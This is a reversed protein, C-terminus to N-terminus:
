RALARRAEVAATARSSDNKMAAVFLSDRSRIRNSVEASRSARSSLAHNEDPPRTFLESREIEDLAEASAARGRRRAELFPTARARTRRAGPRRGQRRHASCGRGDRARHAHRPSLQHQARCLRGHRGAPRGALAHRAVSNPWDRRCGSNSGAPPVSLLGAAYYLIAASLARWRRPRSGRAKLAPVLVALAAILVSDARRRLARDHRRQRIADPAWAVFGGLAIGVLSSCRSRSSPPLGSRDRRRPLMPEAVAGCLVAIAPYAPLVYHPLKTPAIEFM